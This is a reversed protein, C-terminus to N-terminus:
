VSEMSMVTYHKLSHIYWPKNLWEIASPFNHPKYKSGMIFLAAILM